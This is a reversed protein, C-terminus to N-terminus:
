TQSFENVIEIVRDSIFQVDDYSLQLHMPLSLIHESVYAAYPCKGRDYAYMQYLTNDAYHVGPYIGHRNLNVIVEDRNEVLIQFLHSSSECNKPIDALKIRGAYQAFREQYWRAIQRRYANDRDLYRLQVIAIAAIVSNGHAKEGIYEVDYRWKYNGSNTTRTYTDKNIGLWGKKRAIEDLQGDKFCLMGSDATPLNKVAQFSYIVADAEHGPMKGSVRTGAMHAADLILRLGREKCIRVIDDYHGANGGIGVFIVARTKETIREKVSEPNLCMTNDIDAFVAKLGARPIAHNTSIFTIPTTIIEDGDEWGNQEKLIEVAFNLGITASNMYYAFPLGTYRKWEEELQVTKFGLGTWGKELCEQIENLCEQVEFKPTFLQIAM